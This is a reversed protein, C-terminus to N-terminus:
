RPVSWEPASQKRALSEGKMVCASTVALVTGCRVTTGSLVMMCAAERPLCVSRM